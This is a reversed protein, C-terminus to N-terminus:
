NKQKKPYLRNIVDLVGQKEDNAYVKCSHNFTDDEARLSICRVRLKLEDQEHRLTYRSHFFSVFGEDVITNNVSLALRDRLRTAYATVMVKFKSGDSLEIIMPDSYMLYKYQTATEPPRANVIPILGLLVLILIKRM